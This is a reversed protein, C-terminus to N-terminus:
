PIVEFEQKDIAETTNNRMKKPTYARTVSRVDGLMARDDNTASVVSQNTAKEKIDIKEYVIKM